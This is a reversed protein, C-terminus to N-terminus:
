AHLGAPLAEVPRHRERFWSELVYCYWLHNTAIGRESAERLQRLVADSRIWGQEALLSDRFSEEAATKWKGALWRHVPIGFGRKAGGSVREGLRRRAIERLIAKLRNGRLRVSYSLSSAFEWLNQDLFPSRAELAHYMAAGDVKTM